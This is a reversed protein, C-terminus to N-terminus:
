KSHCANRKAIEAAPTITTLTAGSPWAVGARVPASALARRFPAHSVQDDAGGQVPVGPQPQEGRVAAAEQGSVDAAEVV